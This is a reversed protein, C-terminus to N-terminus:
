DTKKLGQELEEIDDSTMQNIHIAHRFIRDLAAASKNTLAAIDADTFIRDGDKDCVCLAALKARFNTKGTTNLCEAEFKDREGARMVRIYVNGNWEPIHIEELKADNANLIDDRSLL